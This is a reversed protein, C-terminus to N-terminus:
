FRAVAEVCRISESSAGRPDVSLQGYQVCICVTLATHAAAAVVAPLMCRWDSVHVYQSLIYDADGNYILMQM